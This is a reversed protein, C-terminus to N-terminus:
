PPLTRLHTYCSYSLNLDEKHPRGYAEFPEIMTENPNYDNDPSSATTSTTTGSAAPAEDIIDQLPLPPPPPDAM